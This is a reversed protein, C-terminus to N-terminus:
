TSTHYNDCLFLMLKMYNFFATTNKAETEKDVMKWSNQFDLAHLLTNEGCEGKPLRKKIEGEDLFVKINGESIDKRFPDGIHKYFTELIEVMHNQWAVNYTAVYEKLNDNAPFSSLMDTFFAHCTSHFRELYYTKNKIVQNMDSPQQQKRFKQFSKM